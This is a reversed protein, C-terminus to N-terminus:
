PAQSKIEWMYDTHQGCIDTLTNSLPTDDAAAVIAARAEMLSKMDAASFTELRRFEGGVIHENWGWSKLKGEAVMKDYKPAM